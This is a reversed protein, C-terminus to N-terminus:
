VSPGLLAYAIMFFGFIGVVGGVLLASFEVSRSTHEDDSKEWPMPPWIKNLWDARETMLAYLLIASLGLLATGALGWWVYAM